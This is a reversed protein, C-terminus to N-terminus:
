KSKQANSKPVKGKGTLKSDELLYHYQKGVCDSYAIHNENEEYLM